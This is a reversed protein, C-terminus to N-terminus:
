IGSRFPAASLPHRQRKHYAQGVAIMTLNVFAVLGDDLSAWWQISCRDHIDKLLSMWPARTDWDYSIATTDLQAYCGYLRAYM